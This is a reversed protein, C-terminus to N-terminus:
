AQSGALHTAKWHGWEELAARARVVLRPVLVVIPPADVPLEQVAELLGAASALRDVLEVPALSIVALELATRTQRRLHSMEVRM